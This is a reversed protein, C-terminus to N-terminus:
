MLTTRQENVTLSPAAANRKSYHLIGAAGATVTSAVALLERYRSKGTTANVTHVMLGM